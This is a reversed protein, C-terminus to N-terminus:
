EEEEKNRKAAVIVSIVIFAVAIIIGLIVWVAINSDETEPVVSVITDDEKNDDVPAIEPTEKTEGMPQEDIVITYESAHTFTLEASGDQGIEGTCLYELEKTSENYYFLNAYLGANAVGVNLSLIAEFGFEGEYALSLNMYTREGTLNNIIEVPITDNADDGTRVTFDIDGVNGKEVSQGNVKWLIGNGLDFEVTIDKGRIRDFVDGPVVSSGNMDVVVTDGEVAETVAETIIEWGEKGNEGRLFPEPTKSEEKVTPKVPTRNPRVPTVAPAPTATPAPTPTPAPDDDDDDDDSSSSSSAIKAIAKTAKYGCDSCTYEMIGEESTTPQKIVKSTLATHNTPDKPAVTGDELKSNCILCWLDGTNGETMCTAKIVDRRETKEHDCASRTVTITIETNKYNEKDEGQYEVKVNISNETGIGLEEELKSPDDVVFKWGEPLKVDNLTKCSNKVNIDGPKNSPYEAQNVVISIKTPCGNYHAQDKPTFVVGYTKDSNLNESYSLQANPEQYWSFTGEVEVFENNHNNYGAKGNQPVQSYLYDGHTYPEVSPDESVKIIAKHVKLTIDREVSNYNTNTPTFRIKLTHTGIEPVFNKEVWSWTGDLVEGNIGKVEGPQNVYSSESLVYDELATPRYSYGAGDLQPVTVESPDAKNVTISVKDTCEMYTKDDTPTFVWEAEYTGANPTVDPTRWALTGPVPKKEVQDVFTNDGFELESLAQGYTLTSSKLVLDGQLETLTRDVLVVNVIIQGPTTTNQNINYNESTVKLTIKATADVTGAKVSYEVTNGIRHLTLINNTDEIDSSTSTCDVYGCDEPLLSEVTFEEHTQQNFLYTKTIEPVTCDGKEVTIEVSKYTKNYNDSEPLRVTIYAKGVKLPTVIGDSSVSVIDKNYAEYELSAQEPVTSISEALSLTEGMKITKEDEDIKIQSDLKEVKLIGYDYGPNNPYVINVDYYSDPNDFTVTFPYEGADSNKNAETHLNLYPKIVEDERDVKDSLDLLPTEVYVRIDPLDELYKKHLNYVDVTVPRKKITPTVYMVVITGDDYAGTTPKFTVKIKGDANLEDPLLRTPTCTWTGDVPNGDEDVAAGVTTVEAYDGYFGSITPSTVIKPLTKLTKRDEAVLGAKNGAADIVIVWVSYKEDAKLGTVTFPTKESELSMMYVPLKVGTGTVDVMEGSVKIAPTYRGDVKKYVVDHNQIYSDIQSKLGRKSTDNAIKEDGYILNHETCYAEDLCFYLLTAKEYLYSIKYTAQTDTLEGDREYPPTVAFSVRNDRGIGRTSIYSSRNGAQDVAYAYIVYRQETTISKESYDDPLTIAETGNGSLLKFGQTADTVMRDLADLEEETLTNCTASNETIKQIYYYYKAVGNEDNARITMDLTKDNYPVSAFSVTDPLSNYWTGKVQIGYNENSGDSAEWTPATRDGTSQVVKVNKVSKKGSLNLIEGETTADTSVLVYSGKVINSLDSSDTSNSNYWITGYTGGTLTVKASSSNIQLEDVTTANGSINLTAGNNVSITDYEGGQITGKGDVYLSEVSGGYFYGKGSSNNIWVANHRGSKVSVSEWIYFTMYSKNNSNTGSDKLIVNWNRNFSVRGKNSQSGLNYGNLDFTIEVEQGASDFTHDTVNEVNGLLKVEFSLIGNKADNDIANMADDFTSYECVNNGIKVEILDSTTGDDAQVAIGAEDDASNSTTQVKPEASVTDGSVTEVETNEAAPNEATKETVTEESAATTKQAAEALVSFDTMGSVLVVALGLALIQRTLQKWQSKIKKM